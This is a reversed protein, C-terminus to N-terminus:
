PRTAHWDGLNLLQAVDQADPEGPDTSWGVALGAAVTWQPHHAPAWRADHLM